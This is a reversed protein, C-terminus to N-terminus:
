EHFLSLWRKQRCVLFHKESKHPQFVWWFIKNGQNKGKWISELVRAKRVIRHLIMYCDFLNKELTDLRQRMPRLMRMWAAPWRKVAKRGNRWIFNECYYYVWLTQRQFNSEAGAGPRKQKEDWEHFQVTSHYHNSVHLKLAGAIAQVNGDPWSILEFTKISPSFRKALYNLAAPTLMVSHHALQWRPFM